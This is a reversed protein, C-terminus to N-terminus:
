RFGEARVDGRHAAFAAVAGEGDQAFSALDDGDGERWARGAAEVQGDAFANQRVRCSRGASSIIALNRRLRGAIM